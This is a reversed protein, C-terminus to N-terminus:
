DAITRGSNRLLWACPMSQLEGVIDAAAYVTAARRAQRAGETNISRIRAHARLSHLMAAYVM